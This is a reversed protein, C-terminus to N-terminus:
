APEAINGAMRRCSQDILASLMVDAKKDPRRARRMRRSLRNSKLLLLRLAPIFNQMPIGAAHAIPRNGFDAGFFQAIKRFCEDTFFNAASLRVVGTSRGTSRLAPM